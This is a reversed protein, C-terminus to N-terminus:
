GAGQPSSPRETSGDPDADLYFAAPLGAADRAARNFPPKLRGHFREALLRRYTAAPNLGRAACVHLFWRRGAAVHGIEDALIRELIAASEADGARAFRERMGPTVDLGRAELTLPVIVLRALIDDATERAAQWLGAHAPLDGYDAGLAQLRARLLAFHEAEEGCIRAWDDVFARPMDAGFRAIIDAALDIANFEIHAIAHLLAIRTKLSGARRRRPMEGPPLLVPHAPRAPDAPPAAAFAFALRGGRWDEALARARAVKEEPRAAVLVAVAASGVDPRTGTGPSM